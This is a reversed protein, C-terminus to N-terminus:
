VTKRFPLQVFAECYIAAHFYNNLGLCLLLSDGRWRIAPALWVRVNSTMFPLLQVLVSRPSRRIPTRKEDIGDFVIGGRNNSMSSHKHRQFSTREPLLATKNRVACRQFRAIRSSGFLLKESVSAEVSDTMLLWESAVFYPGM